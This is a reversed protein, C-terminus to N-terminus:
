FNFYLFVSVSSLSIVCWIFMVASVVAMRNTVCFNGSQMEKKEAFVLFCFFLVGIIGICLYNAWSLADLKLTKIVYWVEPWRFTQLFKDPMGTFTFSFLRSFMEGVQALSECRFVSHFMITVLFTLITSLWIPLKKIQGYFLKNIIFAVGNLLGWLVYNWAAGHWMGSILFVLVLNIYTRLKGKRNGGFPIYINKILFASLTMHWRKWLEMITSSLYPRDFNMPLTFGFLRGLGIAMDSYGSFDLYIQLVFSLMTLLVGASDLVSFDAYGFAVTKGISDALIVKKFLGFTFLYIGKAIEEPDAQQWKLDRINPLLNEHSIIPGAVLQPFFLIFLMFDIPKTESTEGRYTDALFSIEQFTYFSIGLPLILALSTFKGQYLQNLNEIFFNYYKFVFLLGLNCVVGIILIRKRSVVSQKCRVSEEHLDATDVSFDSKSKQKKQWLRTCLFYNFLISGLLLFLYPISFYAYFWASMLILWIKAYDPKTFRLLLYYGAIAIPLFLFIFYYSNFLM